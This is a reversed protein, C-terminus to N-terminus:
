ADAASGAEANKRGRTRARIVEGIRQLAEVSQPVYPSFLQFVHTMNDWSDLAVDARQNRAHDAFAEISDYLIESRGAQIYLPPLGRLDAYFPSVLPDSRQTPEVFWDIWQELMREDIWDGNPRITARSGAFELGTPPSIVVALAPLPIRAERAALLLALALNGGASDGALVLDEPSAGNALLWRYASLGDELQAPFRHEPALRYNLAFTKTRAALAVQEIFHAYARPYFSYGGGHCYLMTVRPPVGDPVFWAGRTEAQDVPRVTVALPPFTISFSDLYRRAENVDRMRFAVGLQKRLLRTAVEAVWNWDQGRRRKFVRSASAEALSQCLATAGRLRYRAPGCFHVQAAM